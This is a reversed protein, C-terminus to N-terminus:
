FVYRVSVYIVAILEIFSSLALLINIVNHLTRSPIKYRMLLLLAIFTIWLGVVQQLLVYKYSYDLPIM